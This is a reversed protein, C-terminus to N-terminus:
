LILLFSPALKFYSNWTRPVMHLPVKLIAIASAKRKHPASQLSRSTGAPRDDSGLASNVVVGGMDVDQSVAVEPGEQGVCVSAQPLSQTRRLFLVAM